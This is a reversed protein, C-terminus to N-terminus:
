EVELVYVRFVRPDDRFPEHQHSERKRYSRTATSTSSVHFCSLQRTGYQTEHRRYQDTADRLFSYRTDGAPVISYRRVRFPAAGCRFTRRVAKHDHQLWGLVVGLLRSAHLTRDASPSPGRLDLLPFHRGGGSLRFRDEDRRIDRFLMRVS